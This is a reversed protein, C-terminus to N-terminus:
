PMSDRNLRCEGFEACMSDPAYTSPAPLRRRRSRLVGLAQPNGQRDFTLTGRQDDFVM